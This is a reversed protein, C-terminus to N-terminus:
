GGEAPDRRAPPRNRPHFTRGCRGGTAPRRPPRRGATSVGCRGVLRLASAAASFSARDTLALTAPGAGSFAVSFSARDALAFVSSGAAAFGATEASRLGEHVQGKHTLRGLYIPNSLIKYLHGRSILGGGTTKGRGDSRIPLRILEQDLIAKLRVVSGIELYRRFLHRVFAAHEEVIHLARNEVRYGLPVVGGM